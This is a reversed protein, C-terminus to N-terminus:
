AQVKKRERSDMLLRDAEIELDKLFEHWDTEVGSCRASVFGFHFPIGEASLTESLRSIFSEAGGSDTFPLIIIFEDGRMHWRGILDFDRCIHTFIEASRKLARDGNEHGGEENKQKLGIMDALVVSVFKNPDNSRHILKMLSVAKEQFADSQMLGTLRDEMFYKPGKRFVFRIAWLLDGISRFKEPICCRSM